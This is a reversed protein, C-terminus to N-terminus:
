LLVTPDKKRKRKEITNGNLMNNVVYATLKTVKHVVAVRAILKTRDM